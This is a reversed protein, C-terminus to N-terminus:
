QNSALMLTNQEALTWIIFFTRLNLIDRTKIVRAVREKNKNMEGGTQFRQSVTAPLVRPPNRSTGKWCHHNGVDSNKAFKECCGGLHSDKM